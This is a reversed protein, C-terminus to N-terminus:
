WSDVYSVWRSSGSVVEWLQLGRLVACGFAAAGVAV